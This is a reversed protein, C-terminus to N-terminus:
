TVRRSVLDQIFVERVGEPYITSLTEYVVAKIRDAVAPDSVGNSFAGEHSLQMLVRIIRDRILEKHEDADNAVKSPMEINFSVVVMGQTRLTDGVPIVFPRTLKVVRYQGSDSSKKGAALASDASVLWLLGCIGATLAKLKVM